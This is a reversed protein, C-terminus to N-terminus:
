TKHEHNNSPLMKGPDTSSEEQGSLGKRFGRIATGLASGLGPLRKPGFLLLLVGLGAVIEGWGLHM